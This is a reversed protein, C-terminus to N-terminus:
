RLVLTEPNEWKDMSAPPVQTAKDVRPVQDVWKVVLDRCLTLM